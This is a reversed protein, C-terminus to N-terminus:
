AGLMWILRPGIGRVLDGLLPLLAGLSLTLSFLILIVKLPAELFFIQIQPAVRALLGLAVDAMLAAGVVPLALLLGSALLQQALTFTREAALATFDPLPGNLPVAIFTQQLGILVLHHGNLLLFLLSALLLFLQDLVTSAGDFAPNLLRASAFGGSLGMFEGAMQVAGFTLTAAFGALWGIILERLLAAGLALLPLPEAEAPLPQWPLMLAALAVGFIIRVRNPIARGGLVPVQVLVAMLRTFALLFLQAQAVAVIV